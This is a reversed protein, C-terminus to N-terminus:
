RPRVDPDPLRLARLAGRPAPSPRVSARLTRASAGFSEVEEPALGDPEYARRFDPVRDYLDSVLAPDVPVDMRPQPAIGSANFRVQWAHPM